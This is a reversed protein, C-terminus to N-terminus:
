QSNKKQVQFNEKEKGPIYTRYFDSGLFICTKCNLFKLSQFPWCKEATCVVTCLGLREDGSVACEYGLTFFGVIFLKGRM